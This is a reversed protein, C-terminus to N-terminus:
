ENANSKKHKGKMRRIQFRDILWVTLFTLMLVVAIGVLIYLGISLDGERHYLRYCVWAIILWAASHFYHLIFKKFIWNSPDRPLAFPPVRIFLSVLAILFALIAWYLYSIGLLGALYFAGM